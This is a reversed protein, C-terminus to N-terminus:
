ANESQGNLATKVYKAMLPICTIGFVTSCSILTPKRYKEPIAMGILLGLAILCIKLAALVKWDSEAVYRNAIHFIQKM